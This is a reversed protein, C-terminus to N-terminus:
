RQADLRSEGLLVRRDPPRPALRNGSVDWSVEYFRLASLAPGDHRKTHRAKEYRAALKALADHVLRGGHPQEALIRLGLGLREEGAPHWYRWEHLPVEGSSTEGYLWFWTIQGHVLEAYMPYDSFPWIDRGAVIPALSGLGIVAILAHVVVLRARSV